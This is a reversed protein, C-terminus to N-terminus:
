FIFIRYTHDPNINLLSPIFGYSVALIAVNKGMILNDLYKIGGLFGGAM